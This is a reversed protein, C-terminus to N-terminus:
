RERPLVADRLRQDRAIRTLDRRYREAAVARRVM